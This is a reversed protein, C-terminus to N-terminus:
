NEYKKSMGKDKKDFKKSIKAADFLKWHVISVIILLIAISGAGLCEPIEWEPHQISIGQLIFGVALIVFGTRAEIAQQYFSQGLNESLGGPYKNSQNGWSECIIDELKKTMFSQALYYAGIIDFFIGLVQIHSLYNAWELIIAIILFTIPIVKKM